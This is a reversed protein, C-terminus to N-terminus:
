YGDSVIEDLKKQMEKTMEKNSGALNNKEGIDSSLDYLQAYHAYGGEIGKALMWDPLERHQPVPSIYKWDGNRLGLTGPSEEVLYERGTETRGLLTELLNISDIAEDESLEVELMSAFSAYIDMQSILADSVAPKVHGPWYVITPVRTGAEYASYKGGRFPGGPRHNGLNEVADDAYGDDLVPGNDSTFIVITNDAIGLAALERIIEGTVWDVQAIVDGRLGMTSAGEFRPHPLRPVHIDHFSYFLFFPSDKNERIFNVARSKLIEPFDEELWLASEGGGMYGIRSVGNIITDSHQPDAAFRLLEPNERGTPRDGVKNKYSVTIPDDPDLSVVRHNELYVTPVRDGTAPLLFSYDFGIELPGPAVEQNWDVSGSGLGLHWKGVVATRYGARQFMSPLTPSGPPILLPADGPLIAADSRFGHRGTLLSFRSPTCTAAASHADTFRIGRRALEDIEPTEVGVAGYSGVDAYGLDDVYLIIVNPTSIRGDDLAASDPVKTEPECGLLVLLPVILGISL